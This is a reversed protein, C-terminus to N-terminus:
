RLAAVVSDHNQSRGTIETVPKLPRSPRGDAERYGQLYVDIQDRVEAITRHDYVHEPHYLMHEVFERVATREDDTQPLLRGTIM